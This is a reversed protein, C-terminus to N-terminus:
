LEKRRVVFTENQKVKAARLVGCEGSRGWFDGDCLASVCSDGENTQHLDTKCCGAVEKMAVTSSQTV